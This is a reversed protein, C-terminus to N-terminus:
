TSPLGPKDGLSTALAVQIESPLLAVERVGFVDDDVDVAAKRLFHM